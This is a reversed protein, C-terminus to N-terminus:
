EVDNTDHVLNGDQDISWFDLTPDSDLNASATATFGTDFAEMSYEYVNDQPIYVGFGRIYRSRRSGAPVFAKEDGYSGTIEYREAQKKYVDRLVSAPECDQMLSICVYLILFVFFVIGVSMILLNQFRSM